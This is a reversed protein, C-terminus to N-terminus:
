INYNRYTGSKLLSMVYKNWCKINKQKNIEFRNVENLSKKTEKAKFRLVNSM